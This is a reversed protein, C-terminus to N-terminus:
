GVTADKGTIGTYRFVGKPVVMEFRAGRGPIGNETITIGTIALIERILFLGLGTHNGVGQRFLNNKDKGSVGVGDDECVLVLSDDRPVASFRITAVHGGHRAANEMLNYIVKNLLPDAFIELGEVNNIVMAGKLDVQGRAIIVLEYVNQWEPAKVGMEQYDYTFRLGDDIFTVIQEMKPVHAHIREPNNETKILEIYGGLATLKNRIDHRTVSSLLTLKKNATELATQIKQRDVIDRSVGRYGRFIGERDFFPEGNTELIITHGDKHHESHVLGTFPRQVGSRGGFGSRVKRAEDPPMFDFPTKGNMEQPMFGLIRTVRPSVYTFQINEDTEWIIDSTSEVLARFREESEHLAQEAQKKSTIDRLIILYGHPQRNLIRIPQCTGDYYRMNGNRSVAIERHDMSTESKKKALLPMADPLVGALPQGVPSQDGTGLIKQAAPNMDRIRDMTDIVIIGSNITRFILPYTVPLLSFLEFRFIAIAVIIGSLTFMFPTLDLGRFPLFGLIYIMNAALPICVAALLLAAQYKYAPPTNVLRSVLVAVAIALLSYSYVTHVWFLPGHTFIWVVSGNLTGPIISTYFLRHFSSTAVLLVVLSPISYLLALNKRTIFQERGTYAFIVLLWAVPVTVIGIYNVTTLIMITQYDACVLELAYGGTWLACAGMILMFPLGIPKDRNKWGVWALAGNILAAIFLPIFYPSSQLIM